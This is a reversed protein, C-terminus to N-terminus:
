PAKPTSTCTPTAQPDASTAPPTACSVTLTGVGAYSPDVQNSAMYVAGGAGLALLPLIGLLRRFKRNRRM